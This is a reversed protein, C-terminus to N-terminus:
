DEHNAFNRSSGKLSITKTIASQRVGDCVIIVDVKVQGSTQGAPVRIDGRARMDGHGPLQVTVDGTSFHAVASVAFTMSGHHGRDKAEAEVEIAGHHGEVKVRFSGNAPAPTTPQATPNATPTGTPAVTPVATPVATPNPVPTGAAAVTFQGVMAGASEPTANADGVSNHLTCVYRYNGPVTVKLSFTAGAGSM